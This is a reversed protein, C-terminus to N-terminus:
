FDKIRISTTYGRNAKGPWYGQHIVTDEIWVNHLEKYIMGVHKAYIAKSYRRDVASSDDVELVTVTSDFDFGSLTYPADVDLYEYDWDRYFEFTDSAPIFVNGHWTSGTQPPFILRIFRLNEEVRELKTEEQVAYWIDNIVWPVTDYLRVYREIRLAERGLLDIFTSEIVEKVQWSVTKKGGPLLPNYYTSDVYYEVSHGIETPYYSYKYDVLLPPEQKCSAALLLSVALLIRTTRTRM